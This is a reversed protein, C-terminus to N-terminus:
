IKWPIAVGFAAKRGRVVDSMCAICAQRVVIRHNCSVLLMSRAGLRASFCKRVTGAITAADRSITDM